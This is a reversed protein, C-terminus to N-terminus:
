GPQLQPSLMFPAPRARIFDGRRSLRNTLFTMRLPDSLRVSRQGVRMCCRQCSSCCEPRAGTCDPESRIGRAM